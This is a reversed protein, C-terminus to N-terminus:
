VAGVCVRVQVLGLFAGWAIILSAAATFHLTSIWFPKALFSLWRHYDAAARNIVHSRAILNALGSALLTIVIFAFAASPPCRLSADNPPRPLRICPAVRTVALVCM